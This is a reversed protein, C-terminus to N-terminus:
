KHCSSLIDHAVSQFVPDILVPKLITEVVLFKDSFSLDCFRNERYCDVHHRAAVIKSNRCSLIESEKELNVQLCSRINKLFRQGRRSFWGRRQDFKKCYKEGFSVIYNSSRCNLEKALCSYYACSGVRRQCATGAMAPSVFSILFIIGFIWTKM